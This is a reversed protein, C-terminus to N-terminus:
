DWPLGRERCIRHLPVPRSSSPPLSVRNDGPMVACVHGESLWFLLRESPTPSEGRSLHPFLYLSEISPGEFLLFHLSTGLDGKHATRARRRQQERRLLGVINLERTVGMTRIARM